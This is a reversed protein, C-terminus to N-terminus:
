RLVRKLGNKFLAQNFNMALGISLGTTRLYSRVQERHVPRPRPVSKLEVLVSEAVILDIKQGPIEWTKYKVSIRKESEFPMGRADLELRFAAAYIKERFGPGLVKHVTFGVDIVRTVLEELEASLPSEVRLM